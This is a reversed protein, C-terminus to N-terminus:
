FDRREFIRVALLFMGAALALSVILGIWPIEGSMFYREGSMIRYLANWRPLPAIGTYPLSLMLHLGEGVVMAQWWSNFIISLLFAFSYFVLGAAIAMLSYVVTDAVAYSQGMLRSLVPLALSAGIGLVALELVGTAAGVVLLRRRTIPLSFTFQPTLGSVGFGCDRVMLAFGMTVAWIPWIFLFSNRFWKAWVYGQYSALMEMVAPSAGSFRGRPQQLKALWKAPEYPEGLVQAACFGILIILLFLFAWRTDLWSKYWLM